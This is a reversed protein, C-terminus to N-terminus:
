RELLPSAPWAGFGSEIEDKANPCPGKRNFVKKGEAYWSSADADSAAGTSFCVAAKGGDNTILIAWNVDGGSVPDFSRSFLRGASLALIPSDVAGKPALVQRWIEADPAAAKVAAVVKPNALFSLGQVKDVPYKGAYATLSSSGKVAAVASGGAAAFVMLATLFAMNQSRKM